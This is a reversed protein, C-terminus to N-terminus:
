ASRILKRFLNRAYSKEHPALDRKLATRSRALLKGDFEGPINNQNTQMYQVLGSREQEKLPSVMSQVVQDIEPIGKVSVDAAASAARAIRKVSDVPLPPVATEARVSILKEVTQKDWEICTDAEQMLHHSQTGRGPHIAVLHVRVGFSQALVVGIRVDEDGSMLVADTIANNRALEVMDTVILSDVGKQQGMANLFGLRLKVDNCHAIRIHEASPGSRASAGDYWYIRLLSKGSAYTALKKLVDVMAAEDLTILSRKSKEGGSVLASGAAFFYGADIFVAVREM